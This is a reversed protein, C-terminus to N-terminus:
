CGAISTIVASAPATASTAPTYTIRCTAQNPAGTVDITGAGVTFGTLKLTANLAAATAAPYGWITNVTPSGILSVTGTLGMQNNLLAQANVINMGSNLAGLAGNLTAIRAATQTNGMKPIAIAALIGLVVIVIILEILTFGPQKPSNM